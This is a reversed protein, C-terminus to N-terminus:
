EAGPLPHFTPKGEGGAMDVAPLELWELAMSSLEAETLARRWHIATDSVDQRVPNEGVGILLAALLGRMKLRQKPPVYRRPSM